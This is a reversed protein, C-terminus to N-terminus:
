KKGEHNMEDINHSKSKNISIIPIIGKLYYKGHPISIIRTNIGYIKSLNGETLIEDVDGFIGRGNKSMLLIKDSIYLAHEPYHTTVIVTLGKEHALKYILELVHYQNKYDLASTPEDLIMVKAESALARAILVLQKEGGSLESFARKELHSIGIAQLSEMAIKVDKSSPTSFMGIYRARGMLVMDIVSYPFVVRYSQPVYGIDGNIYIKGKKLNLMGLLCKLLTTKGCGNPGLITLVEGDNVKLSLNSFVNSNQSYEFAADMVEVALGVVEM